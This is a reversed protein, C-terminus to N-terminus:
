KFIFFLKGFGLNEKRRKDETTWSVKSIHIFNETAFWRGYNCYVSSVKHSLLVLIQHNRPFQVKKKFVCKYSLVNHLPVDHIILSINQYSIQYFLLM